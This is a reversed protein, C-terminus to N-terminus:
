KFLVKIFMRTFAEKCVIIEKSYMAMLIIVINFTTHVKFLSNIYIKLNADM